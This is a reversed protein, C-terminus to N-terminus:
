PIMPPINSRRGANGPGQRLGNAFAILEAMSAASSIGPLAHRPRHWARGGVIIAPGQPIRKAALTTLETALNQGATESSVSLWVLKPKHEAIARELAALPLDPGLNITRWKDSALALAAMMSPLLYPDGAPAGGLALPAEDPPPPMISRLRELGQLCVDTARHELHITQPDHAWRDGVEHMAEAFPGDCMDVVSWGDLYMLLALSRVTEADGRIVAERLADGPNPHALSQTADGALDSLGLLTPDTLPMGEERVFRIAERQEIRRHGGPTRMVIIRGADSWRKLSSESVGIARAFQKPSLHPM